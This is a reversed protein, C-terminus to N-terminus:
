TVRRVKTARVYSRSLGRHLYTLFKRPERVPDIQCDKGDILVYLSKNAVHQIMRYDRADGTRPVAVIAGRHLELTGAIYQKDQGDLVLIDVQMKTRLWDANLPGKEPELIM